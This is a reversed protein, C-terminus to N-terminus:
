QVSDELREGAGVGFPAPVTRPEAERDDPGDSRPACPPEAVATLRSPAACGDGEVERSSAKMGKEPRRVTPCPRDLLVDPFPSTPHVRLAPSGRLPDEGERDHRLRFWRAERDCGRAVVVLGQLAGVEIPGGRGGELVRASARHDLGLHAVVPGGVSDLYAEVIPGHHLDRQVLVEPHDSALRVVVAGGALSLVRTRRSVAGRGRRGEVAGSRQDEDSTARSTAHPPRVISCPRGSSTTESRPGDLGAPRRDTGVPLDVRRVEDLRPCGTSGAPARSRGRTRPAIRRRAPPRSPGRSRRM